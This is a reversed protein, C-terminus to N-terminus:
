GKPILPDDDDDDMILVDEDSEAAAASPPATDEMPSVPSDDADDEDGDEFSLPGPIPDDFPDDPVIESLAAAGGAEDYEDDLGAISAIITEPAPEAAPDEAVDEGELSVDTEEEPVDTDGVDAPSGDDEGSRDLDTLGMDEGTDQDDILLDDDEIELDDLDDDASAAESSAATSAMASEPIEEGDPGANLRRFGLAVAKLPESSLQPDELDDDQSPSASESADSLDVDDGDEIEDVEDDPHGVRVENEGDDDTLLADTEALLAGFDVPVDAPAGGDTEPPDEWIPGDPAEAPVATMGAGALRSLVLDLQDLTQYHVVVAGSEGNDASDIEVALGIATSTAREAALIDPDKDGSSRPRAPAQSKPAKPRDAPPADGRAREEAQRVTLGKAIIEEVLTEPDESQLLARAHGATIKGDELYARATPPLSLLRLTNAVHSRSKGVAQAIAEQSHGHDDILRRFGEAEEIPTLDQRQINEILAIELADRDDFERILAPIEHLQAIQAARWRREGAILEYVDDDNPHRRLLIPQLVGKERISEALANIEEGDFIRRPQFRGPAIQDIAVTKSQRLRDLQSKDDEDEGLLSSLGRGLKARRKGGGDEISM